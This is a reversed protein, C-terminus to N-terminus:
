DRLAAAYDVSRLFRLFAFFSMHDLHDLYRRRFLHEAILLALYYPGQCLAAIAAVPRWDDILVGPAILMVFLAASAAWVLTVGRTYAITRADLAHGRAQSALKTLLATKRPRLGRGFLWCLLTDLLLPPLLFLTTM